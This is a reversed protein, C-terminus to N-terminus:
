HSGAFFNKYRLKLIKVQSPSWFPRLARLGKYLHEIRDRLTYEYFQILWIAPTSFIIGTANVRLAGILVVVSSM